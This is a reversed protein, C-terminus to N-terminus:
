ILEDHEDEESDDPELEDGESDEEESDDEDPEEDGITYELGPEKPAFRLCGNLFMLEDWKGDLMDAVNNLNVLGTQASLLYPEDSVFVRLVSPAMELDRALKQVGKSATNYETGTLPLGLDKLFSVPFSGYGNNYGPYGFSQVVDVRRLRARQVPELNILWKAWPLRNIPRHCHALDHSQIAFHTEAYFIDRAEKRLQVCTWLLPPEEGNSCGIEEFYLEYVRNRMEACLDRFRFPETNGAGIASGTGPAPALAGAHGTTAQTILSSTNM